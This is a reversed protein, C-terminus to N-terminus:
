SGSMISLITMGRIKRSSASRGEAKPADAAPSSSTTQIASLWPQLTALGKGCGPSVM